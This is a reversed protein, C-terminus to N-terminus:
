GPGFFETRVNMGQKELFWKLLIREDLDVIGFPGTEKTWTEQKL